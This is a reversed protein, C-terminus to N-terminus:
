EGFLGLLDLQQNVFKLLSNKLKEFDEPKLQEFHDTPNQRKLIEEHSPTIREM